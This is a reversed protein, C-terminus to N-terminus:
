NICTDTTPWWHFCTLGSVFEPQEMLVKLRPILVEELEEITEFSRNVIPENTLPWLREAPELEPSYSPLFELDIGEPIKLSKSTHWRAGDLVLLVQKKDGIGFYRAFDELVQSFIEQNVFPMLWWYTEGSEPNVFGYLWVWKYQWKISATPVDWWPVWIRRYIPKLGIRHEDETWLEM